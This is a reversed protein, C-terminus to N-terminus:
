VKPRKHLGAMELIQPVKEEWEIAMIHVGAVGPIKRVADITEVAIRIGEDAQKEKPVGAIREILDEPVEMGAVRTAMYRAMGVSKLPTIGALISVKETLGMERAQKMFETFRDLSFVCQTQIFDAGAEVKKALRIV